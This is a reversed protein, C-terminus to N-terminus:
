GLYKLLTRDYYLAYLLLLPYSAVSPYLFCCLHIYAVSPYLFCSVSSNSTLSHFPSSSWTLPSVHDLRACYSATLTKLLPQKVSLFKSKESHINNVTVGHVVHQRIDYSKMTNLNITKMSSLNFFWQSRNSDSITFTSQENNTASLVHNSTLLHQFRFKGTDFYRWSQTANDYYQWVMFRSTRNNTHTNPSKFPTEYLSLQNYSISLLAKKLNKRSVLPHNLSLCCQLCM